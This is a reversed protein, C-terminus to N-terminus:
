EPALRPVWATVMSFVAAPKVVRWEITLGAASAMIMLADVSFKDIRGRLLDNVIVPSLTSPRKETDINPLAIHATMVAKAGAKIGAKFPIFEM